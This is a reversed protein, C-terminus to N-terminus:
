RMPGGRWGGCQGDDPQGDSQSAGVRWLETPVGQGPRRHAPHRNRGRRARGGRSPRLGAVGGVRGGLHRYRVLGGPRGSGAAADRRVGALVGAPLHASRGSVTVRRDPQTDPPAVLHGARVGHAVGFGDVGCGALAAVGGTGSVLVGRRAGTPGRGPTGAARARHGGLGAGRRDIVVPRSALRHHRWVGGPAAVPGARFRAPWRGSDPGGHRRQGLTSVAAALCSDLRQIDGGAEGSRVGDFRRGAHAGQGGGRRRPRLNAPRNRGHGRWRPLDAARGGAVAPADLGCCERGSSQGGRGLRDAVAVAIDPGHTLGPRSHPGGARRFHDIGRILGHDSQHQKRAIGLSPGGAAGDGSELIRVVAASCRHVHQVVLRDQSRFLRQM